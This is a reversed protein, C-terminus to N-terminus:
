QWGQRVRMAALYKIVGMAIYNIADAAEEILSEAMEQDSMDEFKQRNDYNVAYQEAGTGKIRSESLSTLSAVFSALDESSMGYGHKVVAPHDSLPDAAKAPHNAPIDAQGMNHGYSGVCGPVDCPEAAAKPAAAVPDELAGYKANPELLRGQQYFSDAPRTRRPEFHEATHPAMNYANGDGYRVQFFGTRPDTDVHMLWCLEDSATNRLTIGNPLSFLEEFRM